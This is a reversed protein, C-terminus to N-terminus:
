HDRASRLSRTARPHRAALSGASGRTVLIVGTHLAAVVAHDVCGGGSADTWLRSDLMRCRQSWATVHQPSHQVPKTERPTLPIGARSGPWREILLLLALSNGVIPFGVM